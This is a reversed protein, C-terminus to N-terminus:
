DRVPELHTDDERCNLREPIPPLHSTSDRSTVGNSYTPGNIDHRSPTVPTPTGSLFGSDQRQLQDGRKNDAMVGLISGKAVKVVPIM